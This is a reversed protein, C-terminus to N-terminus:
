CVAINNITNYIEMHEQEAQQKALLRAPREGMNKLTKRETKKRLSEHCKEVRCVKCYSINSISEINSKYFYKNCNRCQKKDICNICTRSYLPASGRVHMSKCIVCFKKSNIFKCNKCQKCCQLHNKCHYAM